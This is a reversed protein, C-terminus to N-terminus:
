KIKKIVTSPVFNGILPIATMLFNLNFIILILCNYFYPLKEGPSYVLLSAATSPPLVDVLWLFSTIGIASLM